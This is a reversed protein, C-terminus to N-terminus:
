RACVAHATSSRGYLMHLAVEGMPFWAILTAGVVVAGFLCRQWCTHVLAVRLKAVLFTFRIFAAGLWDSLQLVRRWGLCWRGLGGEQREMAFVLDDVHM